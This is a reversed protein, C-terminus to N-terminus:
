WECIKWLKKRMATGFRKRHDFLKEQIMQPSDTNYIVAWPYGHLRDNGLTFLGKEMFVTVSNKTQNVLYFPIDVKDLRLDHEELLDTQQIKSPNAARYFEDQLRRQAEPDTIGLKEKIYDNGYNGIDVRIHYWIRPSDIKSIYCVIGQHNVFM